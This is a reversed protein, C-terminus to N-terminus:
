QFALDGEDGSRGAALSAAVRQGQGALAGVDIATPMQACASVSM